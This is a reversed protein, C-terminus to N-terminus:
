DRQPSIDLDESATITQQSNLPGQYDVTIGDVTAPGPNGDRYNSQSQELAAQYRNVAEVYGISEGEKAAM